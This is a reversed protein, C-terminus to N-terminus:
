NFSVCSDVQLVLQVSAMPISGGGSSLGICAEHMCHPPMNITDMEIKAEHKVFLASNTM